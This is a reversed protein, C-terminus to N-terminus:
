KRSPRRMEMELREEVVDMRRSQMDFLKEVKSQCADTTKEIASWAGGVMATPCTARGDHAGRRREGAAGRDSHRDEGAGGATTTIDAAASSVYGRWQFLSRPLVENDGDDTKQKELVRSSAATSPSATSAAKEGQVRPTVYCSNMTLQDLIHRKPDKPDYGGM